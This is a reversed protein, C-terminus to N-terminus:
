RVLINMHNDRETEWSMERRRKRGNETHLQEINGTHSTTERPYCLQQLVPPREGEGGGTHRLGHRDGRDPNYGEGVFWGHSLYTGIKSVPYIPWFLM